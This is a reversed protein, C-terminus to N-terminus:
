GSRGGAAYVVALWDWAARPEPERALLAPSPTEERDSPIAPASPAADVYTVAEPKPVPQEIPPAVPTAARSPAEVRATPVVREAAATRVPASGKRADPRAPEASGPTFALMRLLTMCFGSYEDPAYPLDRRGNLAIQYYLQVTEGDLQAACAQMRETDVGAEM